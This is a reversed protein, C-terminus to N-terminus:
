SDGGDDGNMPSAAYVANQRQLDATHADALWQTRYPNLPPDIPLGSPTSLARGEHAEASEDWVDAKVEALADAPSKALIPALDEVLVWNDGHVEDPIAEDETAERVEAIVAYAADREATCANARLYGLKMDRANEVSLRMFNGLIAPLTDVAFFSGEVLVEESRAALFEANVQRSADRQAIAKDREIEARIARVRQKDAEDELVASISDKGHWKCAGGLPFTTDHTECQAFDFPPTRTMECPSPTDTFTLARDREAILARDHEALWTDFEARNSARLGSLDTASPDDESRWAYAWAFLDGVRETSLKTTM